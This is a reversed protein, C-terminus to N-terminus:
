DEKTNKGAAAPWGSTTGTRSPLGSRRKKFTMNMDALVYHLAPLSCKLGLAERLEALTLDPKDALLKRIAIRHEAVITRKRGARHHLSKLHGLKRRQQLLKKVMGLSVNFRLAIVERTGEGSLYASVIRERLDLSLAAM